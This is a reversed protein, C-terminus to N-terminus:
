GLVTESLSVTGNESSELFIPHAGDARITGIEPRTQFLRKSGAADSM